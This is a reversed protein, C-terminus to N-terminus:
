SAKALFANIDSALYGVRKPGVRCFNPGMGQYRWKALTHASLHLRLAAQEPSLLENSYLNGGSAAKATVDM